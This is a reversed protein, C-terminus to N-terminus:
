GVMLDLRRVVMELRAKDWPRAKEWADGGARRAAILRDLWVPGSDPLVDIVLEHFLARERAPVMALMRVLWAEQQPDDLGRLPPGMHCSTLGGRGLTCGTGGVEYECWYVRSLSHAMDMLMKARATPKGDEWGLLGTEFARGIADYGHGHFAARRAQASETGHDFVAAKARSLRGSKTRKGMKRARGM